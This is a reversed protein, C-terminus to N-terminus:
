PLYRRGLRGWIPTTWPEDTPGRTIPPIDVPDHPTDAPVDYGGYTKGPRTPDNPPTGDWNPGPEWSFGGAVAEIEEASLERMLKKM